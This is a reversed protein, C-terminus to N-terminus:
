QVVTKCVQLFEGDNMWESRQEAALNDFRTKAEVTKGNKCAVKILNLLVVSNKPDQENLQRLLKESEDFRDARFLAYGLFHSTEFEPKIALSREYYKIAEGFNQAILQVRGSQKLFEAQNKILAIRQPVRLKQVALPIASPLAIASYAEVPETIKLDFNIPIYGPTDVQVTYERGYPENLPIRFSQLRFIAIPEDSGLPRVTVFSSPIPWANELHVLIVYATGSPAAERDRAFLKERSSSPTQFDNTKIKELTGGQIATNDRLGNIIPSPAGISFAALVSCGRLFADLRNKVEFIWCVFVSAGVVIVIAWFNPGFLFKNTESFFMAIARGVRAITGEQTNHSWDIASVLTAAGAGSAYFKWVPKKARLTPM